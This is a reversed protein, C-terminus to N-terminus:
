AESFNAEIYQTIEKVTPRNQPEVQLIYKILNNFTSSFPSDEPISIRGSMASLASGDCPSNVYAMAYLTCGLSWVDTKEDIRCESAVSFLEPARYAATCEQACKEELALSESRSRVEVRAESVSGMDMLCVTGDERLLLNHPKIDRHAYPPCLSHFASVAECLSEFMHLIKREPIRQGRAASNEILEQVSGNQYFPFLMRAERNEGKVVIEYDILPMINPHDFLRHATVERDVMEEHEPVQMLVRKFWFIPNPSDDVQKQDPNAVYWQLCTM